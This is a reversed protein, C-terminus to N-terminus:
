NVTGYGAGAAAVEVLPPQEIWSVLTRASGLSTVSFTPELYPDETGDVSFDGRYTSKEFILPTPDGPTIVQVVNTANAKEVAFSFSQVLRDALTWTEGNALRRMKSILPPVIPKVTVRGIPTYATGDATTTRYHVTRGDSDFVRIGWFPTYRGSVRGAEILNDTQDIVETDLTLNCSGPTLTGAPEHIVNGLLDQWVVAM